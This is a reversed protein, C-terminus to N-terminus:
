KNMSIHPLQAASPAPLCGRAPFTTCPHFNGSWVIGLPQAIATVGLFIREATLVEGRHQSLWRSVPQLRLLNSLVALVFRSSHEVPKRDSMTGLNVAGDTIFICIFGLRHHAPFTYTSPVTTAGVSVSSNRCTAAPRVCFKSVSPAPCHGVHGTTDAKLLVGDICCCIGGM